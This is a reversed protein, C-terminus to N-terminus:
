RAYPGASPHREASTARASRLSSELTRKTQTLAHQVSAISAEISELPAGADARKKMADIAQSLLEYPRASGAREPLVAVRDLDIIDRFSIGLEHYTGRVHRCRVIRGVARAIVERSADAFAVTCTSDVHVYGTHYIAMGSCSIDRVQASICQTSGGPQTIHALARVDPRLNYRATGRLLASAVPEDSSVVANLEEIALRTLETAM